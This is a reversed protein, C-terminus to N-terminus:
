DVHVDKIVSWESVINRTGIACVRFELYLGRKLGKMTYTAATPSAVQTWTETGFERMQLIYGTRKEVRDWSQTIVGNDTENYVKFNQPTGLSELTQPENTPKFGSAIIIDKDGKAIGDVGKALDTLVVLLQKNKKGKDAVLPSGGDRALNFSIKFADYGTRVPEVLSQLPAFILNTSTKQIVNDAFLILEPESLNKFSLLVTYYM